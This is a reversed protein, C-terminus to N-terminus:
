QQKTASWFCHLVSCLGTQNGKDEPTPMKRHQSEPTQVFGFGVSSAKGDLSAGQSTGNELYQIADYNHL